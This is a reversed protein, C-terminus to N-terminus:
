PIIVFPYLKSQNLSGTTYLKIFYLGPPFLNGENDVCHWSGFNQFRDSNEIVTARRRGTDDYISINTNTGVPFWYEYHIAGGVFTRDTVKFDNDVLEPPISNYHGPTSGSLNTCCHWGSLQDSEDDREYSRGDSCSSQWHCEDVVQGVSDILYLDGSSNSLSLDITAAPYNEYGADGWVGSSDGWHHEFCDSSDIPVLRRCLIAYGRRGLAIDLPIALTDEGNILRYQSLIESHSGNNYIEVWELLVRNGPENAMIESIVLSARASAILCLIWILCTPFILKM